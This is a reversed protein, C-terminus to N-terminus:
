CIRPTLEGSPKELIRLGGAKTKLLVLGNWDRDDRAEGIISAENYGNKKLMSLVDDAIESGIALVVRGECALSLPDIGLM